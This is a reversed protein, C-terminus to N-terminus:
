VLTSRPPPTDPPHVPARPGTIEGPVLRAAPIAAAAIDDKSAIMTKVYVCDGQCFKKAAGSACDKCPTDCDPQSEASAMNMGTGTSLCAAFAVSVPAVALTAILTLSVIRKVITSLHWM